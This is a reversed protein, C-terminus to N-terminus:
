EQSATRKALAAQGAALRAIPVRFPSCSVYDLKAEHCFAISAPDGGHEGCIGLKLGPRARRGREAAIRILEGVGERDLTVFPDAPLIGKSTYIGLFSAADDRSIGFATQTLDNTGFSFFEATAAIEGARLAARPLEIMTGVQYEVKSKAEASVTQAMADIRAKILDLEAKSAILPVMIEPVVPAGTARSAEIAAEFIARAQMEAIEPYAIALRCGRFGLMPNFERLERARDALKKPDAGMAAAVTAIEDDTHPLFEHLPPDLLRITVPLAGMIKFLEVFDNRQMPLLKALAARRTKEDEALIMERMAQIRDEDFFMHETRCLGIGEAGFKIATRADAPTDANARVKLKRAGDAWQMLTAFEGTLEPESMPVKGVLVQGTSGDITLIEGKKMTAGGASMTQTRYDVRLMGAGAVCPKGMGRAVVAAHSTMGGRTTLIGEAAHMGHIDEPSTEVRVLIVKRGQNSLAEADESSFVIEGSAAGPSAPLGTAIVNREAAPDITPHLLQDLAAPDVRTVAEEKSILKEQALEVAIRLAAGATRKGSRTQLMWLKGQEVTFELDQMDRYHRELAAYIRKLEAFAQPLAAEMSPKDSGAEQRAAETIEQPTRIGAVVDEGQANILFEGYLKKEGTSPNRTFAVGTASTEGMNGFVMAQVNVATGWSEPIGHLRRYTIARPNMWSGFVAGIAGWLQAQPDQPFAKGTEEEIRQKFVGVLEEWDAAELDTDLTYGNREKHEDLVEEFHHHGIGLVVDAYMSVFRRYSDYAFRRDGSNKALAAVTADNLGLNLVTDMMGPMSARAGSRVSVLLPNEGDGFKKGTIRGVEALAADVKAKLEKPYTKGNQYFYTCVETTITFGPPVPVGLHAMEALGAGKGGLLNRMGARGEAKGGGFAYVWKGMPAASPATTRGKQRDKAKVARRPSKKEPRHSAKSRSKVM